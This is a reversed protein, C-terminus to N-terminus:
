NFSYTLTLSKFQMLVYDYQNYICLIHRNIMSKSIVSRHTAM